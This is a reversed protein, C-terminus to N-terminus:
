SFRTRRWLSWTGAILSLLLILGLVAVWTFNMTLPPVVARLGLTVFVGTAVLVILYDWWRRRESRGSFEDGAQAMITRHYDLGYRICERSIAENTSSHEKASAVATSIALAGLIMLVSGGIVLLMHQRDANALENIRQEHAM